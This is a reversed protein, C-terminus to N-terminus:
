PGQPTAIAEPPLLHGRREASDVLAIISGFEERGMAIRRRAEARASDYSGIATLCGILRSASMHRTSDIALARHFFPVATDCHGTRRYLSAVDEYVAPDRDYLALSRRYAAFADEVRNQLVLDGGWNRWAWYSKPADIITTSFLTTNDRWVPLRTTTRWLGLLLLPTAVVMTLTRLREPNGVRLELAALAAGIALALGVSPLFLTREAAVIGTPALLNAVPGLALALWALGAAAVPAWRLAALLLAGFLTVLLLGVWQAGGLTTAFSFEQPAYDAQLHAPWFLLRGWTPVVGLMTVTRGAFTTQQWFPHVIDGAFGHLVAHRVTLYLVLVLGLVLALRAAEARTEQRPREGPAVLALPVLLVPWLVAHEKTLCALAYCLVIGGFRAGTLGERHSDLFLVTGALLLLAALLEGQGVVNGVAETHVPHVAFLSAALASPWLPLFRHALAFVLLCVGLYLLSSTVHFAVPSGGGAAWEIAYTAITLPRYLRGDPGLPVQPWYTEIFRSPLDGLQHVAPNREVIHVDDYAFGNRLGAASAALALAGVLLM